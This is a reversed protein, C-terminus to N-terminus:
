NAKFIKKLIRYWWMKLKMRFLEFKRAFFFRRKVKYNGKVELIKKKDQKLKLLLKRKEFSLIEQSQKYEADLTDLEDM